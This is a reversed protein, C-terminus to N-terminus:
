PGGVIASPRACGLDLGRGEARVASELASCTARLRLQGDSFGSGTIAARIADLDGASGVADRTAPMSSQVSTIARLYADHGEALLSPPKLTGLANLYRMMADELLALYQVTEDATMAAAMSLLDEEGRAALVAIQDEVTRQYMISLTQAESIYADTEVDIATAYEEVSLSPEACSGALVSLLGIMVFVARPVDTM